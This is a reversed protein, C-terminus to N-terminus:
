CVKEDYALKRNDRFLEPAMYEETGTHRHLGSPSYFQSVGYDSLKVDVGRGYLSPQNHTHDPQLDWVLVNSPKIDRHVIYLSHLYRIGDAIQVPSLLIGDDCTGTSICQLGEVLCVHIHTPAHPRNMQGYETPM